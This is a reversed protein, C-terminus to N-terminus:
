YSWVMGFTMGREHVAVEPRPARPERGPWFRVVVAGVIAAGGVGLLVQGALRKREGGRQLSADGTAPSQRDVGDGVVSRDFADFDREALILLGTGGAALAAGSAALTPWLWRRGRSPAPSPPIEVALRTVRGATIRVEHQARGGGPALVEVVHEGVLLSVPLETIDRGDIRVTAGPPVVGVDLTGLTAELQALRAQVRARRAEPLTAGFEVLLLAYLRHARDPRGLVDQCVAMGSLAGWTPEARYSREFLPLAADCDAERVFLDEARALDEAATPPAQGALATGASIAVVAVVAAFSFTFSHM